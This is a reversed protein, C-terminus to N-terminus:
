TEEKVTMWLPITYALNHAPKKWVQIWPGSHYKFQNGIRIKVIYKGQEDLDIIVGQQTWWHLKKSGSLTEELSNKFITRVEM